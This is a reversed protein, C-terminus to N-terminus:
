CRIGQRWREPEGHGAPVAERGQMANFMAEVDAPPRTLRSVIITLTGVAVGALIGGRTPM